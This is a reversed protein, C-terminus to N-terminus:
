RCAPTRSRIPPPCTSTTRATPTRAPRSRASTIPRRIRSGEREGVELRDRWVARLYRRQDRGPQPQGPLLLLLRRRRLVLGFRRHQAQLRWLLGVGPELPNYAGFDELWSINSAWTGAYFGSSHGLDFGGQVAPKGATQAIGRFIYESFLGANATLTWDPAPEPAAAPAPSAAPAATQAWAGGAGIAALALAVLSRSIRTSRDM